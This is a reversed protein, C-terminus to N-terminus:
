ASHPLVDDMMPGIRTPSSDTAVPECRTLMMEIAANKM